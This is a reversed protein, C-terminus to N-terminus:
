FSHQSIIMFTVYFYHPEHNALTIRKQIDVSNKAATDLYDRKRDPGCRGAHVFIVPLKVFLCCLVAVVNNESDSDIRKSFIIQKLHFVICLEM